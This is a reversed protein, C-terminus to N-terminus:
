PAPAGTGEGPPADAPKLGAEAMVAQFAERIAELDGLGAKAALADATVGELGAALVALMDALTEGASAVSVPQGARAGLRDIFPAASRLERLRFPAIAYTEGALTLSAM